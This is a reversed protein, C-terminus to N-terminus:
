DLPLALAAAPAVQENANNWNAAATAALFATARAIGCCVQDVREAPSSFELEFMCCLRQGLEGRAEAEDVKKCSYM